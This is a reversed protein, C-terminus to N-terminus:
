PVIELLMQMIGADSKGEALGDVVSGGSTM